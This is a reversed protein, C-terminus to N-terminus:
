NSESAIFGKTLEVLQHCNADEARAGGQLMGVVECCVVDHHEEVAVV